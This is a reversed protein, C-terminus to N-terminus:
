LIKKSSVSDIEFPAVKHVSYFVIVASYWKVTIDEAIDKGPLDFVQSYM